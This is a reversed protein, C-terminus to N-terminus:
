DFIVLEATAIEEPTTYFWSLFGLNAAVRKNKDALDLLLDQWTEKQTRM